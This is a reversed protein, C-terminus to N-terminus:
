AINAIERVTPSAQDHNIPASTEHRTMIVLILGWFCQVLAQVPFQLALPLAYLVCLTPTWVLLAAGYLPLVRSRFWGKGLQQRTRSLSYGADKYSHVLVVMPMCVVPTYLLMDVLTKLIITLPAADDGFLRAQVNYFTNTLAGQFAWFAMLYPVQSLRTRNPRGRQLKQFLYPLIGAAFAQAPMVFWLGLRAKLGALSNMAEQVPATTYYLGLLLSAAAWLILAPALNVRFATRLSPKQKM